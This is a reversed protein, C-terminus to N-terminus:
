TTRIGAVTLAVLRDLAEDSTLTAAATLAHLAFTALEEPPVDGRVEGASEAILDRVLDRLPRQAPEVQPGRHLLAALESGQHARTGRAIRGWARLVAELREVATGPGGCVKTLHALHRALHRHHLATVVADVDAFYKYLTARGIGARAAIHSMGVAALGREAIVEGAADLAADRVAARHAGVTDEWLRPM